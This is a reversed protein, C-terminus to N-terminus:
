SKANVVRGGAVPNRRRTARNGTLPAYWLPLTDPSPRPFPTDPNLSVPPQPFRSTWVRVEQLWRLFLVLLCRLLLSLLVALVKLIGPTGGTSEPEEVGGVGVGVRGQGQPDGVGRVELVTVRPISRGGGRASKGRRRVDEVGENERSGRDRLRASRRTRGKM